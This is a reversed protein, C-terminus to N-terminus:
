DHNGKIQLYSAAAFLGLQRARRMLPKLTETCSVVRADVAITRLSCIDQGPIRVGSRGSKRRGRTKCHTFGFTKGM